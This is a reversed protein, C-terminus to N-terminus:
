ASAAPSHVLHLSHTRPVQKALWPTVRSSLGQWLNLYGRHGKSDKLFVEARIANEGPGLGGNVQAGAPVTLVPVNFALTFIAVGSPTVSTVTTLCGRRSGAFNSCEYNM